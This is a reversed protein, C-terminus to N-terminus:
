VEVSNKPVLTSVLTSIPTRTHTHTQLHRCLYVCSMANCVLCLMEGGAVATNRVTYACTMMMLQLCVRSGLGSATSCWALLQLMQRCGHCRATGPAAIARLLEFDRFRPVCPLGAPRVWRPGKRYGLLPYLFRRSPKKIRDRGPNM